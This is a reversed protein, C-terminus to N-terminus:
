PGYRPVGRERATVGEMVPVGTPPAPDEGAWRGWGRSPVFGPLLPRAHHWVLGAFRVVLVEYLAAFGARRHAHLSATNDALVASYVRAVGNAALDALAGAALAHFVGRGRFAPAVEVGFAWASGPPLAFAYANPPSVHRPAHDIWEFGAPVGGIEALFLTCGASWEAEFGRERAKIRPLLALDTRTGRRVTVDARAGPAPAHLRVVITRHVRFAAAPFLGRLTHAALSRWDRM